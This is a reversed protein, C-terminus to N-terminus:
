KKIIKDSKLFKGQNYIRLFYTGRPFEQINIENNTQILKQTKVLQGLVNYIELKDIQLQPSTIM